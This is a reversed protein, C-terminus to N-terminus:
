VNATKITKFKVPIIGIQGLYKIECQYKCYEDIGLKEPEVKYYFRM